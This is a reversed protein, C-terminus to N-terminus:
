PLGWLGAAVGAKSKRREGMTVFEIQDRSSGQDSSVVDTSSHSGGCRRRRACFDGPNKCFGAPYAWVKPQFEASMIKQRDKTSFVM